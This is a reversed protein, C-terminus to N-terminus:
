QFSLFCPLTFDYIGFNNGYGLFLEPRSFKIAARESVSDWFSIQLLFRINRSVNQSAIGAAQIM